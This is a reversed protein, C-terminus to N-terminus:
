INDVEKMIEDIVKIAKKIDLLKQKARKINEKDRKISEEVSWLLDTYTNKDEQLLKTDMDQLTIIKRIINWNDDKSYEFQQDKTNIAKM